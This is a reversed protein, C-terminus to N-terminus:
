TYGRESFFNLTLQIMEDLFIDQGKYGKKKLYEELKNKWKCPFQILSPALAYFNKLLIVQPFDKDQDKSIQDHPSQPSTRKYFNKIVEQVNKYDWPAGSSLASNNGIGGQVIYELISEATSQSIYPFKFRLIEYLEVHKFQKELDELVAKRNEGELSKALPNHPIAKPLWNITLTILESLEMVDDYEHQHFLKRLGTFGGSDLGLVRRATAVFQGVEMTKWNDIEEEAHNQKVYVHGSSTPGSDGHAHLQDFQDPSMEQGIRSEDDQTGHSSILESDAPEALRGCKPHFAEPAKPACTRKMLTSSSCQVPTQTIVLLVGYLALLRPHFIM